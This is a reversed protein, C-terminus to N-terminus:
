KGIAPLVARRVLIGIKCAPCLLPNHGFLREYAKDWSPDKERPMMPKAGLLERCRALDKRRRTALIGYHRIRVFRPPLVHQLFLRAFDAGSVTRLRTANGDARDKYRFTANQGDYHTIRSNAIAIRHVYRSLYRVVHAPGALPAKVYVKWLKPTSRLVGM